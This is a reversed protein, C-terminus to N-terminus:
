MLRLGKKLTELNNRWKEMEKGCKMCYVNKNERGVNVLVMNPFCKTICPM